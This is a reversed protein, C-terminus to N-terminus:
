CVKVRLCSLECIVSFNNSVKLWDLEGTELFDKLAKITDCNSNIWVLCKVRSPKKARRNFPNRRGFIVSANAFNTPSPFNVWKVDEHKAVAVKIELFKVLLLMLEVWDREFSFWDFVYNYFPIALFLDQFNFELRLCSERHSPHVVTFKGGSLARLISLLTLTFITKLEKGDFSKGAEEYFVKLLTQKDELKRPMESDRWFSDSSSALTHTKEILSFVYPPNFGQNTFQEISLLLVEDNTLKEARPLSRKWKIFERRIHDDIHYQIGPCSERLM